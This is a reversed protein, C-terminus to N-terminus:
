DPLIRRRRFRAPRLGRNLLGDIALEIGQGVDEPRHADSGVTYREVGAARAQDVIAWAPYPEASGRRLASTNVELACGSAALRALFGPLQAKLAVAFREDYVTQLYKRYVDLHAVSDFLRSEALAALHGLYQAAVEHPSRQGHVRKFDDVEEGSTLAVHDLAHVAGIVFDFPHCVVFSRIAEELGPEYGVEVGALIVLSRYRGRLADIESLYREVWGAQMSVRQGAVNVWERGARAPDPEYHTTFCLESLGIRVARDCFEGLDGAADPSFGPHVHYDVM